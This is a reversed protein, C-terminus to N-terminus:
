KGALAAEKVLAAAEKISMGDQSVLDQIAAAKELDTYETSAEAHAAVKELAEDIDMGQSVLATVAAAKELEEVEAELEESAEKVMEVADEFNYGDAVLDSVSASKEIDSPKAAVAAESNGETADVDDEQQGPTKAALAKAVETVTKGERPTQTIRAAHQAEMEDIEKKVNNGSTPDGAAAEKDMGNSLMALISDAIASGTEASMNTDGIPQSASAEKTLTNKLQDAVSVEVEAASKEIVPNTEDDSLSDLLNDLSFNDSM